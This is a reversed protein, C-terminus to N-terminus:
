FEVRSFLYETTVEHSLRVQVLILLKRCENHMLIFVGHYVNLVKNSLIRKINEIHDCCEPFKEQLTLAEPKQCNKKANAQFTIM